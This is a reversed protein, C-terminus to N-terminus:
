KEFPCLVGHCLIILRCEIERFRIERHLAIKRLTLRVHELLPLRQINVLVDTLDAASSRLFESQM